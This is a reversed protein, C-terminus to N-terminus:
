DSNEVADSKELDFPRKRFCLNEITPPDVILRKPVIKNMRLGVPFGILPKPKRRAQAPLTLATLILITVVSMLMCPSRQIESMMRTIMAITDM